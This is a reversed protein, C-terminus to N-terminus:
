ASRAAEKVRDVDRRVSAIAEEPVLDMQSTEQPMRRLFLLGTAIAIVAVIGYAAWTAIGLGILLSAIAQGVLVAGVIVVGVAIAIKAITIKLTRFEDGIERRLRELHGAALARADSLLAAFLSPTSAESVDRPRAPDSM